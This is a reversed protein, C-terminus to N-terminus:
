EIVGFAVQRPDHRDGPFNTGPHPPEDVAPVVQDTAAQARDTATERSLRTRAAGLDGIRGCRDRRDCEDERCQHDFSRKPSWATAPWATSSVISDTASRGDARARLAGAADRYRDDPWGPSRAGAAPVRQLAPPVSKPGRGARSEGSSPATVMVLRQGCFRWGRSRARRRRHSSVLVLEEILDM